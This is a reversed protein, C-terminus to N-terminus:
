GRGLRSQGKSNWKPSQLSDSQAKTSPLLEVVAMNPHVGYM